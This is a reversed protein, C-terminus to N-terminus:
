IGTVLQGSAHAQLFEDNEHCYATLRQGESMVAGTDVLVIKPGVIPLPVDHDSYTTVPTHGFFGRRAWAKEAAIEDATFRGWVITQRLAPKAVAQALISPSETQDRPDWKAHLVFFEEEEVVPVLDRLFERHRAPISSALEALIQASACEDARVLDEESVGYSRFTQFLGFNMFWKFAAVRDYEGTKGSFSVDHLVQDLVDDHNGRVFRANKLTLLLDIVRKSDPGRNVYDGAFILQRDADRREIERLLTELPALMGHIDGIIWHV